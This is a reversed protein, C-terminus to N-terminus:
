IKKRGGINKNLVRGGCTVINGNRSYYEAENPDSTFKVTGRTCVPHITYIFEVKKAM